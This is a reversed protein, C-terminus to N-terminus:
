LRCEKGVRREESRMGIGTDSVSFKISSEAQEIEGTTIQLYVYGNDTFKIANGILNTLIQHIRFPDSYIIEPVQEEIRYFLEINKELAAPTLLNIIDEVIDVLNFESSTIETKGSEIKSLDLIDNIIELLNKSSKQITNAYDKQQGSLLTDQLLETFGIIGSLPTRIEHSMNALFESKANNAYIAKSRTIDLEANRIELEEMTQQLEETYVNLQIELDTRSDKLENKMQNICSELVGIEGTSKQDIHSDLDGATINRVSSTLSTIPSTIKKSLKFIFLSFIFMILITISGGKLVHDIKEVTAQRTDLKIEINAIVETFYTKDPLQYSHYVPMKFTSYREKEFFNYLPFTQKNESRFLM